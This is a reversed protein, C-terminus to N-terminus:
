NGPLISIEANKEVTFNGDPGDIKILERLFYKGEKKMEYYEMPNVFHWPSYELEAGPEIIMPIPQWKSRLLVNGHSDKTEGCRELIKYRNKTDNKIKYMIKTKEGKVVSNPFFVVDILLTM